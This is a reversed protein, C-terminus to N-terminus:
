GERVALGEHLRLQQVADIGGVPVLSGAQKPLIGSPAVVEKQVGKFMGDPLGLIICQKPGVCGSSTSFM